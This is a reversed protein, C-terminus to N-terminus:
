TRTFVDSNLMVYNKYFQPCPLSMVDTPNLRQRGLTRRVAHRSLWQLTSPNVSVNVLEEVLPAYFPADVHTPFAHTKNLISPQRSESLLRRFAYVCKGNGGQNLLVFLPTEGETNRVDPDAMNNLLLDICNERGSRAAYHLPTNGDEDTCNVCAGYAILWKLLNTSPSEDTASVYHAASCGKEDQANSDAGLRLLVEVTSSNGLKAALILPTRFNVDRIDIDAGNEVLVSIASTLNYKACLHLPARSEQRTCIDDPNIGHALLARLCRESKRHQQKIYLQYDSEQKTLGTADDFFHIRPWYLLVLSIPQRGMYDEMCPNAGSHLLEEVIAERRHICALHLAFTRIYKCFSRKGDAKGYSFKLEENLDVGERIAITCLALDNRVIADYLSNPRNRDELVVIDEVDKKQKSLSAGM